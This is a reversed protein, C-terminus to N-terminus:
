YKDIEVPLKGFRRFEEKKRQDEERNVYEMRKKEEIQSM